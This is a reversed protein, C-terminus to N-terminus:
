SRRSKKKSAPRFHAFQDFPVAKLTGNCSPSRRLHLVAMSDEAEEQSTKEVVGGDFGCEECKVRFSGIQGILGKMGHDYPLDCVMCGDRFPCSGCWNRPGKQFDREPFRRSALGDIGRVAEAHRIAWQEGKAYAKAFEPNLQMVLDLRQSM